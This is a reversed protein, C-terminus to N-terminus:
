VVPFTKSAPLDGSADQRTTRVQVHPVPWLWLVSLVAAAILATVISTRDM